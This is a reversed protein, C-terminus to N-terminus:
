SVVGYLAIGWKRAHTQKLQRHRTQFSVSDIHEATMLVGDERNDTYYGRRLGVQVFNYKRYLSQAGLNSARVELTVMKANLETAKDIVSILLMEGVGQVHYEERVAISTLHCEGVVVWFSAFGIIYEKTAAFEDSGFFRNHNFIRRVRATLESFGKEPVPPVEEVEVTRNNDCAVIHHAIRNQLEHRYNVPPLMTPFAHRDIETVQAVDGRHMLRIYYSM